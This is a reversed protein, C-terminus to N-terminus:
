YEETGAAKRLSLFAEKLPQNVSSNPENLVLTQYNHLFTDRYRHFFHLFHRLFGLCDLIVIEVGVKGYLSKAYECVEVEIIDTTIFIYNDIRYTARSIKTIAIDIDSEIVRKAKMEYSTVTQQDDELTIEVDGMAGTQKDAATHAFLPKINEKVMSSVSMYAASVVLVPLRSANRCKLHQGILTVIQESSLSLSDTQTELSEILQELREADEKKLILLLRIIEKFLNEPNILGEQVDNLLSIAKLYLNKPRGVLGIDRVLPVKINRFAPTLYATTANCPLHFQNIIKQIYQEDYHRGSYTNEGEIETYPKIIDVKPNDLKGAICSLLFRIPDRNRIYRCVFAVNEQFAQDSVFSTDVSSVTKGLDMLKQLLDHM